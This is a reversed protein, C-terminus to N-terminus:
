VAPHRYVSSQGFAGPNGSDPRDLFSKYYPFYYRVPLVDLSGMGRPLNGHYFSGSLIVYYPEGYARQYIRGQWYAAAPSRELHQNKFIQQVLARKKGVTEGSLFSSQSLKVKLCAFFMLFHWIVALIINVLLITWISAGRM